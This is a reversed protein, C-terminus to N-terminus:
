RAVQMTGRTVGFQEHVRLREILAPASIEGALLARYGTIVRLAETTSERVFELRLRRVGAALLRPVLGAASQAQANYVTNRCAPDVIVPHIHGRHDRLGIEHDQCPQGCSRIDRGNSLLHAYVCHETHFTPIHHHVTVALRDPPMAAILAFLQDADLDHAATVTDLGLGLLHAATLSNTVNLSFDGHLEPRTNPASESDPEAGHEAFHMLAGWHRVLVGDPALRAIRRDFGEEGPKQVRPTAVHVAFGAARARIVARELGAREMWDLEVAALDPAPGLALVADLHADTRCLAVLRARGDGSRPSTEASRRLRPLAPAADLVRASGREVEPLLADVLRRRLAKLASVPLHLGPALAAVDLEILVFPTGGVAGLKATLLAADLGAGRAEILPADGELAVRAGAARAEVWLPAGLTGGVRLRLPVRGEVESEVLRRARREIAPDGTLWVRQGPEVRRLDPGPRGFSLRWRGGSLPAVGFIPGGPEREDAPNDADFVVGMGARPEPPAAAAGTNDTASGGLVTLAAEIAGVKEGREALGLGGTRPRGEPHPEVIVDSGEVVAVRGLLLGRHKPFRGEVLHQHDAGGLFGDSFGRSYIVELDRLDTALRAEDDATAGSPRAVADLWRRWAEVASIVYAPGKYRGEIKVTAVGLAALAPAARFGALDKPSLLYRVEGLPRAEGDVYLDYPMRCAQACQGRNASRGGWAESTLCQGSWSVCLAGHVFVETEVEPAAAVFRGIEKISLERPLVVRTFGLGRAFRAGEASSITMQTSAHLELAPCIARAILAVAPDQVIIADVGAAAIDRILAEVIPLEPEFVLTNLTVYARCGARHCEAVVAPLTARDFSEARARANFGDALGFYVADAGAALAARLSQRDGAPALIEPRHPM